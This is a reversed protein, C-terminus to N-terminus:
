QLCTIMGITIAAFLGTLFRLMLFGGVNKVLATGVIFLLSIGYSIIYIPSRGYYQKADANARQWSKFM